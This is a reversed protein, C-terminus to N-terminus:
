GKLNIRFGRKLRRKKMTGHCINARIYQVISEAEDDGGCSFVDCTVYSYEPWTHISIHSASLLLYGTIGHPSFKYFHKNLVTIGSAAIAKSLLKRMFSLSDLQEKACGFFELLYHVGDPPSNRLKALPL